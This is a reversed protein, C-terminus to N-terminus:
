PRREDLDRMMFAADRRQRAALRLLADAHDLSNDQIHQHALRKLKRPAPKYNFGDRTSRRLNEM